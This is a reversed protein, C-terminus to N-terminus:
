VFYLLPNKGKIKNKYMAYIGFNEAFTMAADNGSPLMLGYFLDEISLVDGKLLDATTGGILCAQLSVEAYTNNTQVNM